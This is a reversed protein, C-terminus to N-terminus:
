QLYVATALCYSYANFIVYKHGKTCYNQYVQAKNVTKMKFNCNTLAENPIALGFIEKIDPLKSKNHEKALEILTQRPIRTKAIKDNEEHVALKVDAASMEAKGAHEM